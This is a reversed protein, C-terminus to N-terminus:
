NASRDGPAGSTGASARKRLRRALFGFGLLGTGILLTVGPEPVQAAAYSNDMALYEPANDYIKASAGYGQVHAYSKFGPKGNNQESFADFSRVSLGAATLLYSAHQNPGFRHSGKSQPYDFVITFAGGPAISGPTVSDPMPATGYSIGGCREIDCPLVSLSSDLNHNFGIEGLFQGPVIWDAAEIRLLVKDAEFSSFTARIWPESGSPTGSGTNVTALEYTLTSGMATSAIAGLALAAVALINRISRREM